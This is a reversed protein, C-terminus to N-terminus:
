LMHEVQRRHIIRSFYHGNEEYLYSVSDSVFRTDYEGGNEKMRRSQKKFLEAASQLLSMEAAESLVPAPSRSDSPELRRGPCASGCSGLNAPGFADEESFDVSYGLDELASLTVRSVLANQRFQLTPTMIENRLCDENWHNEDNEALPLVSCGTLDQFAELARPGTYTNTGTDILPDLDAENWKTGLGMMHGSCKRMFIIFHSLKVGTSQLM